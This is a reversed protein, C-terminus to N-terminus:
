GHACEEMHEKELKLLWEKRWLEASFGGLGGGAAVVRHCPIVILIPNRGNAGGASRACGKGMVKAEQGYTITTGYPISQLVKWAEKQYPTGEPELPLSFERRKGQFYEELQAFAQRILPTEQFVAQETDLSGVTIAKIAHGNELIGLRGLPTEKYFYYDM